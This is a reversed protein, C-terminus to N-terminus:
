SSKAPPWPRKFTFLTEHTPNKLSFLTLHKLSSHLFAHFLKQQVKVSIDIKRRIHQPHMRHGGSLMGRPRRTHKKFPNCFFIVFVLQLFLWHFRQAMYLSTWVQSQEMTNNTQSILTQLKYEASRSNDNRKLNFGPGPYSRARSLPGIGM